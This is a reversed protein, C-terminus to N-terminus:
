VTMQFWRCCFCNNTEVLLESISSRQDRVRISKVGLFCVASYAGSKSEHYQEQEERVVMHHAEMSGALGRPWPPM